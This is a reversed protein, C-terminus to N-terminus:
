KRYKQPKLRVRKPIIKEDMYMRNAAVWRYDDEGPFMQKVAMLADHAVIFEKSQVAFKAERMKRNVRRWLEAELDRLM